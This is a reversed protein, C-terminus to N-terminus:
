DNWIDSFPNNETIFKRAASKAVRQIAASGSPTLRQHPLKPAFPTYPATGRDMQELNHLYNAEIIEATSSTTPLHQRDFQEGMTKKMNKIRKGQASGSNNEEDSFSEEAEQKEEMARKLMPSNEAAEVIPDKAVIRGIPGQRSNMMDEVDEVTAVPRLAKPKTIADLFSSKKRTIEQEQAYTQYSNEATDQGLSASALTPTNIGSSTADDLNTPAQRPTSINSSADSTIINSPTFAEGTNIQSLIPSNENEIANTSTNFKKNSWEPFRSDSPQNKGFLPEEYYTNVKGKGKNSSTREDNLRIEQVDPNDTPAPHANDPLNNDGGFHFIEVGFQDRISNAFDGPDGGGGLFYRIFYFIVGFFVYLPHLVNDYAWIFPIYIMEKIGDSVITIIFGGALFLGLIFGLKWYWSWNDNFKNGAADEIIIRVDKGTKNHQNIYDQLSNKDMFQIKDKNIDMLLLKDDNKDLFLKPEPTIDNSNELKTKGLINLIFDVIKNWLNKFRDWILSPHSIFDKFSDVFNLALSDNILFLITFLLSLWRFLMLFSRIVSKGKLINFIQTFISTLTYKSIKQLVKIILKIITKM